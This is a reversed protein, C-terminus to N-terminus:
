EDHLYMRAIGGARTGTLRFDGDKHVYPDNACMCECIRPLIAVLTAIYQDVLVLVTTKNRKVVVFEVQPRNDRTAYFGVSVYKTRDGDVFFLRRLM